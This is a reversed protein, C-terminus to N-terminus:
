GSRERGNGRDKREKGKMGGGTKRMVLEKRRDRGDGLADEEKEDRRGGGGDVRAIEGDENHM